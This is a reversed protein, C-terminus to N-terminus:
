LFFHRSTGRIKEAQEELKKKKQSDAARGPFFHFFIENGAANKLKM